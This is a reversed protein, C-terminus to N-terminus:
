LGYSYRLDSWLLYNIRFRRHGVASPDLEEPALLVWTLDTGSESNRALEFRIVQDPTQPWISSWVVLTPEVSELIKPEVEDPLLALWPRAGPRLPSNLSEWVVHPPPPLKRTRRGLEFSEGDV